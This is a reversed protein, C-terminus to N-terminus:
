KTLRKSKFPQVLPFASVRLHKHPRVVQITEVCAGAIHNGSTFEGGSQETHWFSIEIQCAAQSKHVPSGTEQVLKQSDRGWVPMLVM